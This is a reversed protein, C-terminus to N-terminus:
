LEGAMGTISEDVANQLGSIIFKYRYDNPHYGDVPYSSGGGADEPPSMELSGPCDDFMSIASETITVVEQCQGEGVVQRLEFGGNIEYVEYKEEHVISADLGNRVFIDRINAGTMTIVSM